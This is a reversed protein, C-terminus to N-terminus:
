LADVPFSLNVVLSQGIPPSPNLNAFDSLKDGSAYRRLVVFVTIFGHQTLSAYAVIQYESLVSPRM